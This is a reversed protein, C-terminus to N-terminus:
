TIFCLTIFLTTINFTGSKYLSIHSVSLATFTFYGKKKKKVFSSQTDNNKQLFINLIFKANNLLNSIVFIIIYFVNAQFSSSINTGIRKQEHKM